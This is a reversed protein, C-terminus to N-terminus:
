DSLRKGTILKLKKPLISFTFLTGTYGQGDIFVQFPTDSQMTGAELFVKTETLTKKKWGWGGKEEAQAQLVVELKGDLPNSILGGTGGSALNRIAIAGRVSPRLRYAGGVDISATTDPATVDFLFPRDNIEGIDLSEILRAAIVDVAKPGSPIGLLAGIVSPGIPLFGMTAELEPFLPTLHQLLRDSGVVIINKIGQKEFQAVIKKPESLTSARMITSEIGRRALENEMQGLDRQWRADMLMEDYVYAFATNM